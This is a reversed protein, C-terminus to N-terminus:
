ADMGDDRPAPSIGRPQGSDIEEEFRPQEEISRGLRGRNQSEQLGNKVMWTELIRKARTEARVQMILYKM